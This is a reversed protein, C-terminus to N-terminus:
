RRRRRSPRKVRIPVGEYGFEHRIANTLARLYNMSVASSGDLRFMPPRIKKQTIFKTIGIRNRREGQTGGGVAMRENFGKVFRNLASTPIRKEWRGRARQVAAYLRQAQSPDQHWDKASMEVVEIGKLQELKHDVSYRLEARWQDLDPPGIKDMKNVVLVAARGETVVVDMLKVDQRTLSETADIVVVVVHSNRLAQLSARVTLRELQDASVKAEARVGPTDVLWVPPHDSRRLPTDWHCLVADRTIGAAAGVISREEGVLRNLLTSKGVNPRGVISTILQALPQERLRASTTIVLQEDFSERIAAEEPHLRESQSHVQTTTAEAPQPVPLSRPLVRIREYLDAFGLGQEASILVPDGFGLAYADIARHESQAVDCKNAVLILSKKPTLCSRLWKAHAHDLATLPTSADVIFLVLNAHAVARITADRMSAYVRRYALDSCHAVANVLSAPEDEVLSPRHSQDSANHVADELGPTDVVTLLLDSIAAAAHRSDRTVGPLPHVVSRVFTLPPTSRSDTQRGRVAAALRNFLTSKGVNPRGVLAATLHTDSYVSPAPASRASADASVPARRPATSHTLRRAFRFARPRM